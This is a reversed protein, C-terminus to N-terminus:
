AKRTNKEAVTMVTDDDDDVWWTNTKLRSLVM